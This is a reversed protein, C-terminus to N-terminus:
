ALMTSSSGSSWVTKMKIQKKWFNIESKVTKKKKKKENKKPKEKRKMLAHIADGKKNKNECISYSRCTGAVSM